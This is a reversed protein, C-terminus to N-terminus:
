RAMYKKRETVSMKEITYRLMTRPMVKAHQDLFAIVMDRDRKYIERLMWGTAKHILDHRAPSCPDTNHQQIYLEALSLTRDFTGQQIFYWTAVIAIRRQWVGNFQLHNAPVKDVKIPYQGLSLKVFCDNVKDKVPLHFLYHGVVHHASADIFDWNNLWASYDLYLQFWQESNAAKYERVLLFVGLMREEHVPKQLLAVVDDATAQDVTKLISRVMPLSVGIFVDGEGYQGPGTKFFKSSQNATRDNSLAMLSALWKEVNSSM